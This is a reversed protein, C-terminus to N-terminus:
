AYLDVNVMLSQSSGGAMNGTMTNTRQVSPETFRQIGDAPRVSPEAACYPPIFALCINSPGGGGVM